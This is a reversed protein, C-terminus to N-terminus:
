RIREPSLFFESSTLLMDSLDNFGNMGDSRGRSYRDVGTDVAKKGRM